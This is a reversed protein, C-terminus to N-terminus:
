EPDELLALRPEVGGNNASQPQTNTMKHYKANRKIYTTIERFKKSLITKALM